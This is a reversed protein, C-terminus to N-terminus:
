CTPSKKNYRKLYILCVKTSLYLLFWFFLAGSLTGGGYATRYPTQLFADQGLEKCVNVGAHIRHVKAHPAEDWGQNWVGAWTQQGSTAV